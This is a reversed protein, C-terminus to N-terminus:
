RGGPTTMAQVRGDKEGMGFVDGLAQTLVRLRYENVPDGPKEAVAQRLRMIEGMMTQPDSMFEEMYPANRTYARVAAPNAQPTAESGWDSPTAGQGVRDRFSVYPAPTRSFVAAEGPLVYGLGALLQTTTQLPTAAGRAKAMNIGWGDQLLQTAVM